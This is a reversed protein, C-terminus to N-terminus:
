HAFRRIGKETLRYCTGKDEYFEFYGEIVASEIIEDVSKINHFHFIEPNEHLNCTTVFGEQKGYELIADLDHRNQVFYKTDTPSKM